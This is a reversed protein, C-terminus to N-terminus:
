FPGWRSSFLRTLTAALELLEDEVAARGLYVHPPSPRGWPASDPAPRRGLHIPPASQYGPPRSAPELRLGSGSLTQRRDYSARRSPDGLTEYAITVATFREAAAPENPHVDPHTAQAARRYARGIEADSASRDVGLVAYYDSPQQDAM